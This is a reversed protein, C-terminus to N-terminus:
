FYNDFRKLIKVKNNKFRLNNKLITREVEEKSDTLEIDMECGLEYLTETANYFNREREDELGKNNIYEEIPKSLHYYSIFLREKAHFMDTYKGFNLNYNRNFTGNFNEKYKDYEDYYLITDYIIDPQINIQKLRFALYNRVFYDANETRSDVNNQELYYLIKEELDTEVNGIYRLIERGYDVYIKREDGKVKYYVFDNVLGQLMPKYEEIIEKTFDILLRSEPTFRDLELKNM